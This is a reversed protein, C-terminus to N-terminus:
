RALPRCFLFRRMWVARLHNRELWPSNTHRVGDLWKYSLRMRRVQRWACEATQKRKDDTRTFYNTPWRETEGGRGFKKLAACPGLEDGDCGRSHGDTVGSAVCWAAPRTSAQSRGCWWSCRTDGALAVCLPPSVCCRRQRGRHSTMRSSDLKMHARCDSAHLTSVSVLAM